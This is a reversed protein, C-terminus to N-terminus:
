LDALAPHRVLANWERIERTVGSATFYPDAAVIEEVEDVSDVRLVLLAGSDDAWPGSAVVKGEDNLAAMLERHQPRLELRSDDAPDFTLLLAFM